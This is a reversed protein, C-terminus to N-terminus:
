LLETLEHLDIEGNVFDLLSYYALESINSAFGYGTEFETAGLAACIAFCDSYYICANEIDTNIYEQIEDHNTLNGNLIEAEIEATLNEIFLYKNFNEMKNNNILNYFYLPSARYVFRRSNQIELGIIIALIDFFTQAVTTVCQM